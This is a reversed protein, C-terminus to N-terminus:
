FRLRGPMVWFLNGLAGLACVGILIFILTPDM